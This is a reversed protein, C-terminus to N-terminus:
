PDVRPADEKSMAGPKDLSLSQSIALFPTQKWPLLSSNYNIQLTLLTNERERDRM